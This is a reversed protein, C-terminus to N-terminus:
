TQEDTSTIGDLIDESKKQRGHTKRMSAIKRFYESGGKEKLALGRKRGIERFYASVEPSVPKKM